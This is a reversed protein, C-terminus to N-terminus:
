ANLVAVDLRLDREEDLLLRALAERLEIASGVVAQAARPHREAEAALRRAARSDLVGAHVAWLLLEAYSTLREGRDHPDGRWSVTNVFDLCLSGGVRKPPKERYSPVPAPM